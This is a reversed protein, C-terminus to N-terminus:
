EQIQRDRLPNQAVQNRYAAESEKDAVLGHKRTIDKALPDISELGTRLERGEKARAEASRPDTHMFVLNNKVVPLEENRKLWETMFDVPIGDTLGYGGFIHNANMGKVRHSKIVTKGDDAFLQLFLGHPTKCGVICTAASRELVQPVPVNPRQQAQNSM